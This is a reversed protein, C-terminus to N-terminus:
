AVDAEGLRAAVARLGERGDAVVDRALHHLEGALGGRLERVLDEEGALQEERVLGVDGPPQVVVRHGRELPPEEERAHGEHDQRDPDVGSWPARGWCCRGSTRAPPVPPRSPAWRWTVSSTRAPSASRRTRM